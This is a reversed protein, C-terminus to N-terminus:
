RMTRIQAKILKIAGEVEGNSQSEGVPSEEPVTTTGLERKIADRLSVIAPEQDCKLVIKSYGLLNINQVAKKVAYPNIGKTPVVNANLKGTNRDLMVLIPMYGQESDKVDDNTMFAYDMSVTTVSQEEERNTKFHASNVGKGMVCAKCWSRFPVHNSAYHEEVDKESPLAPNKKVRVPIGESVRQGDIEDDTLGCVDGWHEPRVTSM